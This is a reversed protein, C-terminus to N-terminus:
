KKKKDKYVNYVEDMKLGKEAISKTAKKVAENGKKASESDKTESVKKSGSSSSKMKENVKDQVKKYNDGLLDKRTQGNGYKGSMVEKALNDVDKDSLDNDSGPQEKGTNQAKTHEFMEKLAKESLDKSPDRGMVDEYLDKFEDLSMSEWEEKSGMQFKGSDALAKMYKNMETAAKKSDFKEEESEKEKDADDLHQGGEYGEPYYYTGDVRKIYKHNEWTSGKASHALINIVDLSNRFFPVTM